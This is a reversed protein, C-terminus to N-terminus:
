RTSRTSWASATSCCTSRCWTVEGPLLMTALVVAFVVGSFRVRLRAFAFGALSCSFVTGIIPIVTTLVSNLAYRWFPFSTIARTYNNWSSRRGCAPGSRGVGALSRLSTAVM